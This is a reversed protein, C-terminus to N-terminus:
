FCPFHQLGFDHALLESHKMNIMRTLSTIINEGQTNTQSKTDKDRHKGQRNLYKSINFVAEIQGWNHFSRGLNHWFFTNEHHHRWRHHWLTAEFDRAFIDNNFKRHM